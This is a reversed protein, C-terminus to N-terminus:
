QWGRIPVGAPGGLILTFPGGHKNAWDLVCDEVIRGDHQPTLEMERGTAWAIEM